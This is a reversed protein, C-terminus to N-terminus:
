HADDALPHLGVAHACADHGDRKTLVGCIGAFSELQEDGVDIAPELIHDIDAALAPKDKRCSKAYAKLAVLAHPDCNLDLVFYACDGHRRGPAHEGDTRTVVYKRHIGSM